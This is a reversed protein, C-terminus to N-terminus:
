SWTDTAPTTTATAAGGSATIGTFSPMSSYIGACAAPSSAGMTAENTFTVTLPNNAKGSAAVVLPTTLSHSSGSSGTAGTWVVLSANSSANCGAVPTALGSDSYGAAYSTNAPLQVATITVPFSNPNSITVVVDGSGGPYLTNGPSPTASATITLNSITASQAQGDSGASLGVLWNTAYAALAATLVVSAAGTALRARRTWRNRPARHRGTNSM